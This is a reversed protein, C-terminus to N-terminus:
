FALGARFYIQDLDDDNAGYGFEFPGIPSNLSLVAGLGQRLKSLRIEDSRGYVDGADYRVTLYFRWPLRLRLEANLLLMEDGSLQDTRYGAFSTMGGLYFRESFPLRPRSLGASLRPHFNLLRTLPFYAEISSYVRTFEVDGGAFKGAFQLEFLHKKGSEPFCVRDLTEVVSEIRFVRLGLNEETRGPRHKYQIREVKIGASFSGLRSMQHGLRGDFGTKNEERVSDESGDASYLQRDLRDHYLRILSTFYTRGIRNSKASIYYSQRDDSYGAHLLYELGVGLVNDNLFEAFEESQYEDDWHWGMRLQGTGKEVVGIKVLAGGATPELDITVRDFLDTGFINTMGQAARRSSYPQGIKLPFFSRIFWDRTQHNGKVEIDRIVAEDIEVSVVKLDPDVTTTKVAALDFGNARYMQLIGAIGTRLGEATLVRPPPDGSDIRRALATDDFTYNGKFRFSVTRRDLCAFGSLRLSVPRMEPNGPNETVSDAASDVIDAELQFLGLEVVLAKLSAILENQQFTRNLLPPTIRDAMPRLHNDLAVDTVLFSWRSQRLQIESVISDAAQLGIRYGREILSDKLKFDTSLIDPLSPTIVYDARALQAALKDVSMISTVQNAIDVPTTLEDKPLLPSTTNIAVTFTGPPCMSQVLAVPIPTVMGGDMLLQGDREVGTFALPFAMTARMADALSGNDWIVEKGSVMDTCVTKFPVPLKGFDGASLYVPGTTLDTLVHTFKQGATLGKPIVPVLGRFRLSLLHRDREQRQTFFMARRSPANSFMESFDIGHVISQLRDPSYGSAYLGGVIGGISTGTIACVSISKEEFARLIGITTLGRAGGGSLAM